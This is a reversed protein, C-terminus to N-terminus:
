NMKDSLFQNVFFEQGIGTVKTTRTIRTSGDPNNITREKVEFLGQEMSKQTPMNYREGSSCLYHKQRMWQFLRNQGVEVGNQRILKALDGILISTNSAAVADAFLVKPKNEEAKAELEKRKAREEKLTTLLEIGFDPDGIIRDIVNDTMYAGHKRISPLVENAIKEQFKQAAENKAKMALRYFVNEPIFDAKGWKHPFGIEGLYSEVREWKVYEIGNKEQTFGLGRAVADLKLYAIGDAEYSDIGDITMIEFNNM